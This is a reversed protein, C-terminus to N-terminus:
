AMLRDGTKAGSTAVCLGAVYDSNPEGQFSLDWSEIMHSFQAPLEEAAVEFREGKDDQVM